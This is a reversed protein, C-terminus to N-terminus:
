CDQHETEARSSEVHGVQHQVPQDAQQQVVRGARPEEEAGGGAERGRSQESDVWYM